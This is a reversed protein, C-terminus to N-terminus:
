RSLYQPDVVQAWAADLRQFPLQDGGLHPALRWCVWEACAIWWAVDARQSLGSLGALLDEDIPSEFQELEWDDWTYRLPM